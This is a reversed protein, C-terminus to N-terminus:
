RCIRVPRDERLLGFLSYERRYEIWCRPGYRDYDYDHYYYGRDPYSYYYDSDSDYPQAQVAAPAAIFLAGMAALITSKMNM